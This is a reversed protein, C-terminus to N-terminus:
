KGFYNASLDGWNNFYSFRLIGGLEIVGVSHIETENM